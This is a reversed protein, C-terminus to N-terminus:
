GAEEIDVIAKNILDRLNQPVIFCLVAELAVKAIIYRKKLTEYESRNVTVTIENEKNM